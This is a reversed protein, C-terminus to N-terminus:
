SISDFLTPHKLNRDKNVEKLIKDINPEGDRKRGFPIGGKEILVKNGQATGNVKEYDAVFLPIKLELSTKGAEFTGGELGSEIVIMVDSLGCITSNRLMANRAIWQLKPIFESIIITNNLDISDAFVHKTEFNLIGMALVITTYGGANLAANHASTDIGSAYGSVINIGKQALLSASRHAVEVGIESAKRSGCFGVSHSELIDLNGRVFLFPPTQDGLTNKLKFPFSNDTITIIKINHEFLIEDLHCAKDYNDDFSTNTEEKFGYYQIKDTGSLSVFDVLSMKEVGLRKLLKYLTRAGLGQTHMLQLLAIEKTM